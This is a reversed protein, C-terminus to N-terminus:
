LMKMAASSGHVGEAPRSVSFDGSTSIRNEGSLLSVCYGAYQKFGEFHLDVRIELQLFITLCPSCAHVCVHACVAPVSHM